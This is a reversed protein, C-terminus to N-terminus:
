IMVLPLNAHESQYEEPIEASPIVPGWVFGVELVALNPRIMRVHILKLVVVVVVIIYQIKHDHCIPRSALWPTPIM